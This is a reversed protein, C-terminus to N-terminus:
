ATIYFWEPNSIGSETSFKGALAFVNKWRKGSLKKEVRCYLACYDIIELLKEPGM